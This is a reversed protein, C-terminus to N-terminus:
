PLGGVGTTPDDDVGSRHFWLPFPVNSDLYAVRGGQRGLNIGMLADRLEQEKAAVFRALRAVSVPLPFVLPLM